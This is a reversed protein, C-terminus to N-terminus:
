DTLLDIVYYSIFTLIPSLRNNTKIVGIPGMIKMLRGYTEINM